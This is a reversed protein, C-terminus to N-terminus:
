GGKKGFGMQCPWPNAYRLTELGWGTSRRATTDVKPRRCASACHRCACAAAGRTHAAPLAPAAPRTSGAATHM